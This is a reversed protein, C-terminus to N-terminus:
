FEACSNKRLPFLAIAPRGPGSAGALWAWLYSVFPGPASLLRVQLAVDNATGQSSETAASAADQLQKLYANVADSAGGTASSLSRKLQVGLPLPDPPSPARPDPAALWAAPGPCLLLLDRPRSAPPRLTQPRGGDGLEALAQAACGPDPNPHLPKPTQPLLDLSCAWPLAAAAGIAAEPALPRLSSGFWLAPGLGQMCARLRAKVAIAHRAQLRGGEMSVLGMSREPQREGGFLDGYIQRRSAPATRAHASRTGALAEQLRAHQRRGDRWHLGNGRAGYRVGMELGEARCLGGLPTLEDSVGTLSEGFSRKIGDGTEGISDMAKFATRLPDSDDIGPVDQFDFADQLPRFSGKAAKGLGQLGRWLIKSQDSGQCVPPGGGLLLQACEGLSHQVM